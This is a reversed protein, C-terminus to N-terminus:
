HGRLYSTSERQRIHPESLNVSKNLTDWSPGLQEQLGGPGSSVETQLPALGAARLGEVALRCIMGAARSPIPAFAVKESLSPM